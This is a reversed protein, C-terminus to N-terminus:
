IPCEYCIFKTVAIYDFNITLDSLPTSSYISKSGQRLFVWNDFHAAENFQIEVKRNEM